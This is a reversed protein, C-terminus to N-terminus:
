RVLPLWGAARKTGGGSHWGKAYVLGHEGFVPCLALRKLQAGLLLFYGSVVARAHPASFRSSKINVRCKAEAQQQLMIKRFVPGWKEPDRELPDHGDGGDGISDARFSSPDGGNDM